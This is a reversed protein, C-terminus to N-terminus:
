EVFYQVLYEDEGFLLNLVYTGPETSIEDVQAGDCYVTIGSFDIGM